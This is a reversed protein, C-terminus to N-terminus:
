DFTTNTKIDRITSGRVKWLIAGGIYCVVGAIVFGWRLGSWFGSTAPPVDGAISLSETVDFAYGLLGTGISFAVTALGSLAGISHLDSGTVPYAKVNRRGYATTFSSGRNGLARQPKAPPPTVTLGPASQSATAQGQFAGGSISGSANNQTPSPM